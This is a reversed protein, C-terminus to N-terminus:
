TISEEVYLVVHGNWRPRTTPIAGALRCAAFRSASLTPYVEAKRHDKIWGLRSWWLGLADHRISWGPLEPEVDPDFSTIPILPQRM